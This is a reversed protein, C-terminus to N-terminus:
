HKNLAGLSETPLPLCELENGLSLQVKLPKEEFFPKLDCWLNFCLDFNNLYGALLDFRIGRYSQFPKLTASAAFKFEQISKLNSLKNRQKPYRTYLYHM